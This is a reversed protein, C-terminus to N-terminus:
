TKSFFIGILTSDCIDTYYYVFYLNNSNPRITRVCYIKKILFNNCQIKM